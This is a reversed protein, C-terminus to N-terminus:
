REDEVVKLQAALDTCIGYLTTADRYVQRIGLRQAERAHDADDPILDGIRDCVIGVWWIDDHHLINGRVHCISRSEPGREDCPAAYDLGGPVSLSGAPVADVEYGYLPHGRPIGVYGGLHGGEERRIICPYGTCRDTWAVKDPEVRWQGDAVPQIAPVSYAVEMKQGCLVLDHRAVAAPTTKRARRAM